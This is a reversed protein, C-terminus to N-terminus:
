PVSEVEWEVMITAEKVAVEELICRFVAPQASAEVVEWEVTITVEMVEPVELICRFTAPQDSGEALVVVM